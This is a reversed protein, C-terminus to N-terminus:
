IAFAGDVKLSLDGSVTEINTSIAPIAMGSGVAPMSPWQAGRVRPPSPTIGGVNALLATVPSPRNLVIPTPNPAVKAITAIFNTYPSQRYAQGLWVTDDPAIAFTTVNGSLPFYRWLDLNTWADPTWQYLQANRYGDKVLAWVKGTSDARLLDPQPQVAAPTRDLWQSGTYALFGVWVEGNVVTWLPNPTPSPVLRAYNSAVAAARNPFWVWSGDPDRRSIRGDPLGHSLWLTNDAGVAIGDVLTRHLGSNTPTFHTWAGNADLRSVGGDGGFWRNGAGDVAM